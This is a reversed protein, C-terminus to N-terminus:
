PSGGPPGGGAAPQVTLNDFHVHGDLAIVGVRGQTYTADDATVLPQDDVYGKLHPGDVVL